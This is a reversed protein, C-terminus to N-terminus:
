TLGTQISQRRGDDGAIQLAHCHRASVPDCRAGANAVIGSLAERKERIVGRPDDSVAGVQADDRPAPLTAM